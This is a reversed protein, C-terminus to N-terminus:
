DPSIKGTEVDIIKINRIVLDHEILKGYATLSICIGILTSLVNKKTFM